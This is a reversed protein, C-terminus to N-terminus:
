NLTNTCIVQNNEFAFMVKKISIKQNWFCTELSCYNTGHNQECTAQHGGLTEHLYNFIEGINNRKKRTDNHWRTAAQPNISVIIHKM